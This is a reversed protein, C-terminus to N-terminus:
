VAGAVAGLEDFTVILAALTASGETARFRVTVSTAGGGFTISVRVPAVVTVSPVELWYAAVTVPMEFVPTVHLTLPTIPPLEVMPEM